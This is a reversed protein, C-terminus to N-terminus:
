PQRRALVYAYILAGLGIGTPLWGIGRAPLEDVNRMGVLLGVGALALVLGALKVSELRARHPRLTEDRVFAQFQEVDMRGKEVLARATEHRYLAEREKRRERAFGVVSLFAGIAIVGAVPILLIVTMEPEQTM